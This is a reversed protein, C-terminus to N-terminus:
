SPHARCSMQVYRVKGGAQLWATALTLRNKTKLRM